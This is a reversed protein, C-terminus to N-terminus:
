EHPFRHRERLTQLLGRCAQECLDLVEEFGEAAGYYPDPVDLGKAGAPDFDRLLVIKEDFRGRSLARLDRENNRDLAIVYDFREFDKAQFHEARGPLEIGRRRATALARSDPRSGVHYAGTGASSVSVQQLLGAGALLHLFVGEATPSRCINGLCVFCVRIM